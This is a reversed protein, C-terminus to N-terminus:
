QPVARGFYIFYGPGRAYTFGCTMSYLHTQAVEGKKTNGHDELKPAHMHGAIGVAM